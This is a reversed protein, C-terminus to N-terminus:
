QHLINHCKWSLVHPTQAAYYVLFLMLEVYFDFYM